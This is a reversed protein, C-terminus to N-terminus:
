QEKWLPSWDAAWIWGIMADHDIKINGGEVGLVTFSQIRGMFHRLVITKGILQKAQRTTM